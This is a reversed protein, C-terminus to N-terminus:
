GQSSSSPWQGRLGVPPSPSSQAGQCRWSLSRRCWTGSEPSPIGWPPPSSCNGRQGHSHSCHQLAGVRRYIGGPSPRPSPQLRDSGQGEWWRQHLVRDGEELPGQTHSCSHHPGDQQETGMTVLTWTSSPCHPSWLLRVGVIDGVWQEEGATGQHRGEGQLKEEGKRPTGTNPPLPLVSVVALPLKLHPAGTVELCQVRERGHLQGVSFYPHPLPKAPGSIAGVTESGWCSVKADGLPHGAM